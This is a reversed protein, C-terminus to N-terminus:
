QMQFIVFYALAIGFILAGFGTGWRNVKVSETSWQSNNKEKWFKNQWYTFYKNSFTIRAGWFISVISIVLFGTKVLSNEM